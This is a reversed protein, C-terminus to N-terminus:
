RPAPPFDHRRRWLRRRNAHAVIADCGRLFYLYVCIRAAGFSRPDPGLDLNRADVGGIASPRNPLVIRRQWGRASHCRFAAVM